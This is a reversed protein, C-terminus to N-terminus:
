EEPTDVADPTAAAERGVIKMMTAAAVQMAECDLYHNPRSGIQKWIWGSKEKVRIESTLQALYEDESDIPVEWTPGNERSQNRRLRALTDKINLNSWYHMNCSLGAALVVKRRPSYFRQVPRKESSKHAFTARQDGRLAVWKRKACERYVDYTSYGCDIFVLSPHISFRSQLNDLDVYSLIRENWMLRSSGNATWSRVVCYLHDIQLDVTLFRLPISDIEEPIPAPIISGTRTDIGAEEEWVDGRQYGTPNIEIKYDDDYETFPIALRKQYFIKMGEMDGMRASAKARLYLEALNGWSGACLGNWHFGVNQKAATPNTAVFKAGNEPDNLSRRVQDTDEFRAGCECFMETTSRVREYDWLGDDTRADKSWEISEWRWPQVTSCTPCKWNWERQDTAKHKRDADDDTEGAQSVFFRKGLWGFATVRAEAEAMHGQPWRWTEDGILWRISRRQLNTKNHAGLVWANMGNRFTVSTKKLKHRADGTSSPLLRNVPRCNKWLVQLRTESQDKADADTQDLWLLPGPSNAIIWCSGLEVTMTKGAQIAARISILSVSPDALAELPERIWPSNISKFGGPVPSYPISEINDECWQWPPRMDPMSWGSPFIEDIRSM